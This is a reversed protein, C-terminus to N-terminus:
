NGQINVYKVVLRIPSLQDTIYTEFTIIFDFLVRRNAEPRLCM